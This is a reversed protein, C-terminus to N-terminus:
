AEVHPVLGTMYNQAIHLVAVPPVSSLARRSDARKRIVQWHQHLSSLPKGQAKGPIVHPNGEVRPIKELVRAAELSIPITRAGTKFDPLKLEGAELDVEDWKLTLIENKRCGTLM